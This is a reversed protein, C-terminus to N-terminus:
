GRTTVATHRQFPLCDGRKYSRTCRVPIRKRGALGAVINTIISKLQDRLLLLAGVRYTETLGQNIV